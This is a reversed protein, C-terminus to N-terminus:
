RTAPRHPTSAHAENERAEGPAVLPCGFVPTPEEARVAEPEGTLIRALHQLGPNDGDGGRRDTIGGRFIERGQADYVCITGSTYAGFRWAQVGSRDFIIRATPIATQITKVYESEEWARRDKVDLPTFVLAILEAGPHAQVTKVLQKVTARTCVCRPHLFAVITPKDPNRILATSYSYDTDTPWETRRPGVHGPKFDDSMALYTGALCVIIWVAGGLGHKWRQSLTRAAM